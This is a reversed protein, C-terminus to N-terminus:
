FALIVWAFYVCSIFALYFGSNSSPKHMDNQFFSYYKHKEKSFLMKITYFLLEM